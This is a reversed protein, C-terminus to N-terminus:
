RKRQSMTLFEFFKCNMWIGFCFIVRINGDAHIITNEENELQDLDVHLGLIPMVLILPDGLSQPRREFM